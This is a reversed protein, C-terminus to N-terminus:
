DFMNNLESFHIAYVYFLCMIFLLYELATIFQVLQFGLFICSFLM